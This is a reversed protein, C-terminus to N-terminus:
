KYLVTECIGIWLRSELADKSGRYPGGGLFSNRINTDLDKLFITPIMKKKKKGPCYNISYSYSFSVVQNEFSAEIGGIFMVTLVSIGVQNSVAVDWKVKPIKEHDTYM